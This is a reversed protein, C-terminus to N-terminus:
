ASSPCEPAEENRVWARRGGHSDCGPVDVGDLLAHVIREGPQGLPLGIDGAELLRFADVISERPVGELREAVVYGHMSLFCEVAHSNQRLEREVLHSRSQRTILGVVM